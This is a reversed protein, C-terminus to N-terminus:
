WCVIKLDEILVTLRDSARPEDGGCLSSRALDLNRQFQDPLVLGSDCEGASKKSRIGRRFRGTKRPNQPRWFHAESESHWTM